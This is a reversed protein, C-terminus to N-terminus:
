TILIRECHQDLAVASQEKPQARLQHPVFMEGLIDQLLDEEL